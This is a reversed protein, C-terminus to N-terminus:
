ATVRNSIMFEKLAEDFVYDVELVRDSWGLRTYFNRLLKLSSSVKPFNRM